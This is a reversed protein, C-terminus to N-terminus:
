QMRMANWNCEFIKRMATLKKIRKQKRKKKETEMCEDFKVIDGM